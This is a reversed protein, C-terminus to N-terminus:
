DVMDGLMNEYRLTKRLPEAWPQAALQEPVIACQHHRATGQFGQDLMKQTPKPILNTLTGERVFGCKELVRGSAPNAEDHSAQVRDCGLKDIAYLTAIRVALTAYGRGTTSTPAWYGIDFAQPNLAVRAHLGLMCLLRDEADFLAMSLNHGVMFDAEAQRRVAVAAELTPEAHCWGMFRRLEPLSAVITAFIQEADTVYLRRLCVREGAHEAHIARAPYAKSVPLSSM